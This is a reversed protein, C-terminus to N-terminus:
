WSIEITTGDYQHSRFNVKYDAEILKNRVYKQTDSDLINTACFSANFKGESCSKEIAKTVQDIISHYKSDLINQADQHVLSAHRM